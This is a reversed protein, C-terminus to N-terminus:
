QNIFANLYGNMNQFSSFYKSTLNKELDDAIQLPSKKLIKSLQFCPFGFDGPINEPPIEILALIEEVPHDLKKGLAEAFHQKYTSLM